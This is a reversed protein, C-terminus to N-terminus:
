AHAETDACDFSPVGNFLDVLANFLPGLFACVSLYHYYVCREHRLSFHSDNFHLHCVATLKRALVSLIISGKYYSDISLCELFHKICEEKLLNIMQM